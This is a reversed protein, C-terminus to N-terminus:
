GDVSYFVPMNSLATEKDKIQISINFPTRFHPEDYCPFASRAKTTQFQTAVIWRFFLLFLIYCMNNNNYSIKTSNNYMFFVFFVIAVSLIYYYYYYQEWRTIIYIQKLLVIINLTQVFVILKTRSKATRFPTM